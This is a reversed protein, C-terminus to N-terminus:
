YLWANAALSSSATLLPLVGMTAMATASAVSRGSLTASPRTGPAVRGMSNQDAYYLVYGDNDTIEIFALEPIAGLIEKLTKELKILKTLPINLGIVYEVDDKLYSGLRRCKDRLAAVYEQQFSRINYISYVIQGSIIICIAILFIKLRTNLRLKM